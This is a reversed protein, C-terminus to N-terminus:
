AVAPAAAMVPRRRRVAAVALAALGVLAWAGLVAVHQVAGAGDFFGTSRLLNGGAGPPLLQGIAGAPAPLMEPGTAVASFPNGIFVMTLATVLIGVKGMLAELGATLAAIALVMLSLGAANAVWDGEVVDLWGQVIGTAALGALLSGGIVLAARRGPSTTIGAALAGTLLGALVLPLLSSALAGGAPTSAVVDEVDAGAEAAAHTLAQAVAPSAASAVLAKPGSETAVFAGYVERDEIAERAASESAYRHVDFRGDQSALRQEMAAPGAVGVPLDRPGVKATPWAFMTLILAVIVPVILIAGVPPRHASSSHRSM